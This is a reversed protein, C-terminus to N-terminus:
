KKFNSKKVNNFDKADFMMTARCPLWDTPEKTYNGFIRMFEYLQMCVLGTKKNIRNEYVKPDYKIKLTAPQGANDHKHWHRFDEDDMIVYVSMNMNIQLLESKKVM